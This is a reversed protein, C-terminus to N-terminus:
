IFSSSLKGYYELIIGMLCTPKDWRKFAYVITNFPMQNNNKIITHNYNSNPFKNTAPTPQLRLSLHFSANHRLQQCQHVSQLLTWVDDDHSCCISWVADVRCQSSETQPKPNKWFLFCKFFTPSMQWQSGNQMAMWWTDCSDCAAVTARRRRMLIWSLLLSLAHCLPGSHAWLIHTSVIEVQPGSVTRIPRIWKRIICPM